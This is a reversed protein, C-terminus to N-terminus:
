YKPLKYGNNYAPTILKNATKTMFLQKSDDWTVKEGTRYAVNGM